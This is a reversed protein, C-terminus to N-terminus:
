LKPVLEGITIHLSTILLYAVTVSIAVAAAHSLWNGLAPELLNAVAPEGIAGIGISAMTIGVQIASIHSSIDDLQRLALQAGRRGSEEMEELRSRRSRVLAYEAIVFYANLLVLVLVALLALATM